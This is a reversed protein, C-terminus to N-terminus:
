RALLASVTKGGGARPSVATARSLSKIMPWGFGGTRGTLDPTRMRPARPSRDHVAVEIGDPHATLDLTCTGRRPASRQHRTRLRGPGGRRGGRAHRVAGSQRRLDPHNRTRRRRHVGRHACRRGRREDHGHTGRTRPRAAASEQPTGERARTRQEAVSSVVSKWLRVPSIVESRSVRFDIVAVTSM